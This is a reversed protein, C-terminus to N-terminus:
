IPWDTAFKLRVQSFLLINAPHNSGSQNVSQNPTHFPLLEPLIDGTVLPFGDKLVAACYFLAVSFGVKEEPQRRAAAFSFLSPFFYCFTPLFLSFLKSFDAMFYLSTPPSFSHARFFQFFLSLVTVNM